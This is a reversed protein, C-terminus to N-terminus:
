SQKAITYTFRGYSGSRWQGLGSMEGYDLWEIIMDETVVDGLIKVTFEATTGEPLADSMALTVRPGQATSARLPRELEFVDGGPELIIKRPYVFVKTDIKKKYATVGKSYAGKVDRLAGCAAKFFGRIVYDYIFLQGNETHFGTKGKDYAEEITELEDEAQEDTLEAKSEVWDKYKTKNLPTSGLIPETFKISVQFLQTLM